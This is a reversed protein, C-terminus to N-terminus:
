PAKLCFEQAQICLGSQSINILKVNDLPWGGGAGFLKASLADGQIPCRFAARRDKVILSYAARISKIFLDSTFPKPVILHIPKGHLEKMKGKRVLAM